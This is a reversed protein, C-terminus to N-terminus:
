DNFRSRCEFSLSTFPIDLSALVQEAALVGRYNAEEFISCGSLDFQCVTGSGACETPASPSRELHFWASAPGHCPGLADSGAPHGAGPYRSATEVSRAFDMGGMNGVANGAPTAARPDPPGDCLAHHYWTFVTRDQHAALHQHTAVVYGLAASDYLVNDLEAPAGVNRPSAACAPNAVLWPM